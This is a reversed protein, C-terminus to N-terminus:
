KQTISFTVKYHSNSGCGTPSDIGPYNRTERHTAGFATLQKGTLNIHDGAVWGDCDAFLAGIGFSGLHSIVIGFGGAAAAGKDLLGEAGKKLWGSVKDKDHGSNMILYTMMVKTEPTPVEVNPISLKVKFTGNNLDGMHKVVTPYVKGGVKLSLSVHDTDKHRSRTNLIQFSDVTFTYTKKGTAATDPAKNVPVTTTQAQLSSVGFVFALGATLALTRLKLLTKFM